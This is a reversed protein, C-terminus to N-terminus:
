IIKDANFIMYFIDAYTSIESFLQIKNSMSLIKTFITPNVESM